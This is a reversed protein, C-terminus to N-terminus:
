KEWNADEQNTEIRNIVLHINRHVTRLSKETLVDSNELKKIEKKLKRTHKKLPNNIKKTLFEFQIRTQGLTLKIEEKGTDINPILTLLSSTFHKIKELHQPIRVRSVYNKRIARVGFFVPITVIFDLFSITNVIAVFYENSALFRIM